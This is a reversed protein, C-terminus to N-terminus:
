EHSFAYSAAHQVAPRRMNFARGKRTLKSERSSLRDDCQDLAEAPGRVRPQANKVFALIVTAETAMTARLVVKGRLSAM